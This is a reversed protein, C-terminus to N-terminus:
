AEVEKNKKKAANEAKKKEKEAKRKSTLDKVYQEYAERIPKIRELEEASSITYPCEINFSLNDIDESTTITKWGDESEFKDNIIDNVEKISISTVNAYGTNRKISAGLIRKLLYKVLYDVIEKNLIIGYESIDQTLCKASKTFHGIIPKSINPFHMALMKEALGTDVWDAKIALRDFLPDAVIFMLQAMDIMATFEYEIDGVSEVYFMSTPNRDGSTTGIELVAKADNTQIADSVTLPSKRKLTGNGEKDNDAFMYGRTIGVPSLMYNSALMDSGKVMPNVCEVDNRFIANRLCGSSIKVNFDYIPNGEEDYVVDGDGDRKLFFAKKTLKVNDNGVFDTIGLKKLHFKQSKADDFNVCGKGNIRGKILLHKM